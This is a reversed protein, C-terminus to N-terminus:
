VADCGLPCYEENMKNEIFKSRTLTAHGWMLESSWGTVHNTNLNGSAEMWPLVSIAYQTFVSVGNDEPIVLGATTV